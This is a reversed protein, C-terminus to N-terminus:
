GGGLVFRLTAAKNPEEILFERIFLCVFLRISVATYLAVTDNKVPLYSILADFLYGCKKSSSPGNGHEKLDTRINDKRRHRLSV